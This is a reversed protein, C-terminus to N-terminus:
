AIAGDRIFSVVSRRTVVRYAFLLILMLGIIEPVYVEPESVLAEVMNFLWGATERKHLPGLLPWLLAAPNNWMQDLILHTFSSLSLILLWSKKYRILVLGGIFLALNFLLTHSYDRGSLSADSSTFLWAPKDVIDPLLSGLLVMRYDVLGIRKKIRNLLHYLRWRERNFVISFKLSFDSQHTNDPNAVSALVDCARAVGVTIGIHGFLLM